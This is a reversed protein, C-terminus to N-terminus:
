SNVSRDSPFTDAALIMGCARTALGCWRSFTLSLARGYRATLGKEKYLESSRIFLTNNSQLNVSLDLQVSSQAVLVYNM